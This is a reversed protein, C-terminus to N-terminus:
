LPILSTLSVVVPTRGDALLCTRWLRCWDAVSYVLALGNARSVDAGAIAEASGALGASSGWSSRNGDLNPTGPALLSEHTSDRSIVSPAPMYDSRRRNGFLQSADYPDPSLVASEPFNQSALNAYPDANPDPSVDAPNPVSVYSPQRPPAPFPRSKTPSVMISHSPSASRAQYHLHTLKTQPVCYSSFQGALFQFRILLHPCRRDGPLKLSATNEIGSHVCWGLQSQDASFFPSWLSCQSSTSSQSEKTHYLELV